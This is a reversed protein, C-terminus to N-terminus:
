SRERMIKGIISVAEGGTMSRYAGSNKSIYGMFGLERSAYRPSPFISYMLGGKMEFGKMILFSFEGLTMGASPTRFEKIWNKEQLLIFAQAPAINDDGLGAATAVLYAGMGCNLIEAELIGDIVDNSQGFASLPSVFILAIFLFKIKNMSLLIHLHASNAIETKM